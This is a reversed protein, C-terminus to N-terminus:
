YISMMETQRLIIVSATDSAPDGAPPTVSVATTTLEVPNPSGPETVVTVVGSASQGPLLSGFSLTVMGAESTTEGWESQVDLALVGVPLPLQLEVGRAEATGVNEVMVTLEFPVGDKVSEVSSAVTVILEAQQPVVTTLALPDGFVIYERLTKMLSPYQTAYQVSARHSMEGVTVARELPNANGLQNLYAGQLLRQENYYDVGCPAVTAIAGFDTGVIWAEAMSLRTQGPSAYNGNLCTYTAVVPWKNTTDFTAVNPNNIPHSTTTFSTAL